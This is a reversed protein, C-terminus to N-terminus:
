RGITKGGEVGGTRQHNTRGFYFGIVLNIINSLLMVSTVSLAIQQETATSDIILLAIRGSVYLVVMVVSSAIAAQQAEWIINVRRQSVAVRNEEATTTPAAVYEGTPSTMVDPKDPNRSGPQGRQVDPSNFRERAAPTEGAISDRRDQVATANQVAVEVAAESPKASELVAKVVPDGLVADVIPEKKDSSM